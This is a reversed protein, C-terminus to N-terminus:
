KSPNESSDNVSEVVLYRGQDTEKWLGSKVINLVQQYHDAAMLSLTHEFYILKM